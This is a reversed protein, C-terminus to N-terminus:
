PYYREDTSALVAGGGSRKAPIMGVTHMSSEFDVTELKEIGPLSRVSSIFANLSGLHEIYYSAVIDFGGRGAHLEYVHENERLYNRATDHYAPSTTSILLMGRGYNIDDHNLRITKTIISDDQLQKIRHAIARASLPKGDRSRLNASEKLEDAAKYKELLLKIIEIDIEDLIKM